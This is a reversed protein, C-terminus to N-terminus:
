LWRVEGSGKDELKQIVSNLAERDYHTINVFRIGIEFRFDGDKKENMWIVEGVVSIPKLGVFRIDLKLLTGPDFKEIIPLRIGARSIDTSRSRSGMLKSVPRYEIELSKSIRIYQRRESM